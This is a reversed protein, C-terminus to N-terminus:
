TECMLEVALRFHPVPPVDVISEFITEHLKRSFNIQFFFPLIQCIETSINYSIDLTSNKLHLIFGTQMHLDSFNKSLIDM